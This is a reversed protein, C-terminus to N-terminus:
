QIPRAILSFNGLPLTIKINDMRIAKLLKIFFDSYPLMSRELMGVLSLSNYTKKVALVEFGNNELLKILSKISFFNIHNTQIPPFRKKMFKSLTSEIDHTVCFFIGDDALNNRVDKLFQNPHFLHDLVHITSILDFKQGSVVEYRYVSNHINNNGFMKSSIEYEPKSPEFGVVSDFHDKKLESLFLGIHCGIDLASGKRPLKDEVLKYYNEMTKALMRDENEPLVYSPEEYNSEIIEKKLVPSSFVHGCEDCAVIQYRAVYGLAKYNYVNKLFKQEPLINTDYRRSKKSSGCVACEIDVFYRSFFENEM